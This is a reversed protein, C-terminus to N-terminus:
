SRVFTNRLAGIGEVTIEVVDGSKLFVQPKRLYGIGGPTGTSILDGPELTLTQSLISILSCPKFVWQRTSSHQMVQGNLTLTVDLRSADPIDTVLWPGLPAFGDANKGRFWQKDLLQLDRATVDNVITYGAIYHDAENEEVCKATRSVMVAVEAEYDVQESCRPLPVSQNHPTIVSALKSFFIPSSPPPINNEAAHDAYNLGVAFFRSERGVLPAHSLTELQRCYTPNSAFRALLEQAREFGARGARVMTVVSSFEPAYGAAMSLDLVQDEQVAGLHIQKEETQFNLLRM